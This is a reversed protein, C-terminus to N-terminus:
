GLLAPTDWGTLLLSLLVIVGSQGAHIAIPVLVSGTRERLIGAAIGVALALPMFTPSQHILAFVSATIAITATASLRTRLWTYLAGRFLLEEAVPSLVLIRVLILVTLTASSDALRGNDAGVSMLLDAADRIGSAGALGSVWYYVAAVVYASTWIGAGILYEGPGAGRVALLGRQQARGRGLVLVLAGIVSCYVVAIVLPALKDLDSSWQPAAAKAAAATAVGAAIASVVAAAVAAAVRLGAPQASSDTQEQAGSM